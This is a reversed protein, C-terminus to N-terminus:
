NGGSMIEFIENTIFAQRARNYALQFEDILKTANETANQMAIMRAAHESAINELASHYIQSEIYRELLRQLLFPADPEYIYDWRHKQKTQFVTIPLLQLMKIRQTMANVFENFVVYFADIIGSKYADIMVKIAGILQKFTKDESTRNIKALIQINEEQYRSFFQEARTGVLCLSTKIHQSENQKIHKLMTHLINVNLTGCLGQDSTMVMYGVGKVERSMMFPHHYDPDANALHSIVELTKSAYPRSKMMLERAKRLKSVSVMQMARTIKQINSAIKIKSKFYQPVGM